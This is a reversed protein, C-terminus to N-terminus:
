VPVHTFHKHTSLLGSLPPPPHPELLPSFIDLNHTPHPQTPSYPSYRYLALFFLSDCFLIFATNNCTPPPTAHRTPTTLPLVFTLPPRSTPFPSLVVLPFFSTLLFSPFLDRASFPHPVHPHSHTHPSTFFFYFIPTKPSSSLSLLFSIFIIRATHLDVVTCARTCMTTRSAAGVMTYM